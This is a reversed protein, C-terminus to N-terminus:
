AVRGRTRRGTTDHRSPAALNCCQQLRAHTTECRKKARLRASLAATISCGQQSGESWVLASVPSDRVPDVAEALDLRQM